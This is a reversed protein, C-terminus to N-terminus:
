SPDRLKGMNGQLLDTVGLENLGAKFQEIQARNSVTIHHLIAAQM